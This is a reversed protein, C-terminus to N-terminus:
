LERVRTCYRASFSEGFLNMHHLLTWCSQESTELEVEVEMEAEVLQCLMRGPFAKRRAKGHAWERLTKDIISNYDTVLLLDPGVILHVPSIFAVQRCTVLALVAQCLSFLTLHLTKSHFRAWVRHVFM